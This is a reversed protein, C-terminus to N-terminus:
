RPVIQSPTTEPTPKKAYEWSIVAVLLFDTILIFTELPVMGLKIGTLNQPNYWWHGRLLAFSDWLWVIVMGISWTFLLTKWQRWLLDKLLLMSALLLMVLVTMAILLYEYM